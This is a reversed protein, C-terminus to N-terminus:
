FPLSLLATWAVFPHKIDARYKHELTTIFIRVEVRSTFIIKTKFSTLSSIETDNIIIVCHMGVSKYHLFFYKRELVTWAITPQQLQRSKQKCLGPKIHRKRTKQGQTKDKPELLASRGCGEGLTCDSGAAAAAPLPRWGPRPRYNWRHWWGWKREWREWNGVLDSVDTWTTTHHWWSKILNQTIGSHPLSCM